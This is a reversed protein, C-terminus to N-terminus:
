SMTTGGSCSMATALSGLSPRRMTQRGFWSRDASNVAYCESRGALSGNLQYIGYRRNLAEMLELVNKFALDIM